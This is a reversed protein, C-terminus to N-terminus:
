TDMEGEGEEGSPELAPLKVAILELLQEIDDETLREESQEILLQIEVATTPRLNLLQLKEAKTLNYPALSRIFDEIIEETQLACPTKELYKTTEYTITALHQRKNLRKESGLKGKITKLINYVEFNSLM